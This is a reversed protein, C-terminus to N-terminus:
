LFNSVSNPFIKYDEVISNQHIWNNVYSLMTYPYAHVTLVKLQRKGLKLMSGFAWNKGGGQSFSGASVLANAANEYRIKMKKVLYDAFSFGPPDNDVSPAIETAKTYADGALHFSRVSGDM